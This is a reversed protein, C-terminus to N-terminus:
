GTVGFVIPGLSKPTGGAIIRGGVEERLLARVSALTPHSHPRPTYQLYDFADARQRSPCPPSAGLVPQCRRARSTCARTREAVRTGGGSRWRVDVGSQGHLVGYEGGAFWGFGVTRKGDEGALLEYDILRPFLAPEDMPTAGRAHSGSVFKSLLEMNYMQGKITHSFMIHTRPTYSSAGERLPSPAPDNLVEHLPTEKIGLIIHAPALTPSIKAGAKFHM